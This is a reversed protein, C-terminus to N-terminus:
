PFYCSVSAVVADVMGSFRLTKCEEKICCLSLILSLAPCFASMSFPTYHLIVLVKNKNTFLLFLLVVHRKRLTMLKIMIRM